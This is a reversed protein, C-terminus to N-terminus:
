KSPDNGKATVSDLAGKLERLNHHIAENLVSDRQRRSVYSGYLTDGSQHYATNDAAAKISRSIDIYVTGLLNQWCNVTYSAPIRADKKVSLEMIVKNADLATTSKVEGIEKGELIVVSTQDVKCGKNIVLYLTYTRSNFLCGQVLAMPLLLFLASTIIRM